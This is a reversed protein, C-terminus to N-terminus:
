SQLRPEANEAKTRQVDRESTLQRVLDNTCALAKEKEEVSLKLKEVESELQKRKEICESIGTSKKGVFFGMVAMLVIAVIAVLIIITNM